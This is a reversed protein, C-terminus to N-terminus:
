ALQIAEYGASRIAGEIAVADLVSDDYVVVTVGDAHDAKTSEVGELDNVTMEILMACSSCHMGSTAFRATAQSM